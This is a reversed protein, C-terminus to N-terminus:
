RHMPESPPAIFIAQDTSHEDLGRQRVARQNPAVDDLQKGLRSEDLGLNVAAQDLEPLRIRGLGLAGAHLDFQTPGHRHRSDTSQQGGTLLAQDSQILEARTHRIQTLPLGAQLRLQVNKLRLKDVALRIDSQGFLQLTEQPAGSHRRSRRSPPGGVYGASPPSLRAPRGQGTTIRCEIGVEM